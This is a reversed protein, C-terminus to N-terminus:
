ACSHARSPMMTFSAVIIASATASEAAVCAAIALGKMMSGSFGANVALKAM